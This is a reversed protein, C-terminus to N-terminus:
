PPRNLAARQPSTPMQLRQMDDVVRKRNRPESWFVRWSAPAPPQLFDFRSFEPHQLQAIFMTPVGYISTAHESQVATMTALPDFTPAPLIMAAGTGISALTGGVCGFCHYLPVPVCM